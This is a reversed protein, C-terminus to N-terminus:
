SGGASRARSAGGRAADPPPEAGTDRRTPQPQPLRGDPIVFPPRRMDGVCSPDLREASGDEIFRQLLGLLCGTGSMGVFSHQGEPVEVVLARPM